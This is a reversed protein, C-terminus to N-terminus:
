PLVDSYDMTGHASGTLLDGNELTLYFNFYYETGNYYVGVSGSNVFTESQSTADDSLYYKVYGNNFTFSENSESGANYTYTGSPVMLDENVYFSVFFESVSGKAVNSAADVIDGANYLSVRMHRADGKALDGHPGYDLIQGLSLNEVPNNSGGPSLNDESCSVMVIALGAVVFLNKFYNQTKMVLLKLNSM